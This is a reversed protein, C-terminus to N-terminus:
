KGGATRGHDRVVRARIEAEDFPLPYKRVSGDVMGVQFRYRTRVPLTWLFVPQSFWHRFKPLPGDPDYVLDGPKAWPVQEEAEVVLFTETTGDPFDRFTLGPREFATGPGVIGQYFTLGHDDDARSLLPSRYPYPTRAVLPLNHESDWPEDFHFKSSLEKADDL